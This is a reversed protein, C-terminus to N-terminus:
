KFAKKPKSISPELVYNPMLEEPAVVVLSDFRGNAASPLSRNAAVVRAHDEPLEEVGEDDRVLYMGKRSRVAAAGADILDFSAFGAAKKGLAYALTKALTVGVKVGTFSGPGLDAAWVEVEGKGIGALVEELLRLATGSARRPAEESLVRLVSANEFIAVSVVQSSTSILVWIV